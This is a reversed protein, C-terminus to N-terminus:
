FPSFDELDLKDDLSTTKLSPLSQKLKRMGEPTVQTGDLFVYKLSRIKALHVLGADTVATNCLSLKKLSRLKSLPALGADTIKTSDLSLEELGPLQSVNQMGRDTLRTHDLRLETVRTLDALPALSDDGITPNRELFEVAGCIFSGPFFDVGTVCNFQQATENSCLELLWTPLLSSISIEAGLKRMAEAATQEKRRQRDLHLWGGCGCAAILVCALLSRLSFQIARNRRRRSCEFISVWLILTLLASVLDVALMDPRFDTKVLSPDSSIESFRLLHWANFKPGLIGAAWNTERLYVRPWGHEVMVGYDSVEGPVVALVLGAAVFAGAVYTSAHLRYWRRRTGASARQTSTREM